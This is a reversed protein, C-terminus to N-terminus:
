AYSSDGSNSDLLWLNQTTITIDSLRRLVRRHDIKRHSCAVLGGGWFVTRWAGACLHGSGRWVLGVTYLWNIFVDAFSKVVRSCTWWACCRSGFLAWWGLTWLEHPSRYLARRIFIQKRCPQPSYPRSTAPAFGSMTNYLLRREAGMSCLVVKHIHAPIAIARKPNQKVTHLAFQSWWCCSSLISSFFQLHCNCFNFVSVSLQLPSRSSLLFTVALIVSLINSQSMRSRSVLSFGKVNKIFTSITIQKETISTHILQKQQKVALARAPWCPRIMLGIWFQATCPMNCACSSYRFM